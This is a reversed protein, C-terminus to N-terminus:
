KTDCLLERNNLKELCHSILVKAAEPKNAELQRQLKELILKVDETPYYLCPIGCIRFYEKM